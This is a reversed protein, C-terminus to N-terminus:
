CSLSGGSNFHETIYPLSVQLDLTPHGSHLTGGLVYSVHDPWGNPM